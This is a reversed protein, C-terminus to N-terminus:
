KVAGANDANSTTGGDSATAAAAAPGICYRRIGEEIGCCAKGREQALKSSDMGTNRPSAVQLLLLLLLLLVVVDLSLIPKWDLTGMWSSTILVAVVGGRQTTILLGLLLSWPGLAGLRSPMGEKDNGGARRLVCVCRTFLLLLVWGCVWVCM